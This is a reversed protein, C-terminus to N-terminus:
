TGGGGKDVVLGQKFCNKVAGAERRNLTTSGQAQRIHQGEDCPDFPQAMTGGLTAVELIGLLHSYIWCPCKGSLPAVDTTLWLPVM